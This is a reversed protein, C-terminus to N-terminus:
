AHSPRESPSLTQKIGELTAKAEYRPVTTDPPVDHKLRKAFAGAVAGGIAMYIVAMIILRLWLASILGGLGAVAAVCLLGLGILAVIGALVITAGELAAKKASTQLEGKALELEDKALVKLDDTIRHLLDGVGANGSEAATSKMTDM